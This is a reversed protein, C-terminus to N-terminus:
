EREHSLMFVLADLDEPAIGSYNPMPFHSRAYGPVKYAQPDQISERIYAEPTTASGHYGPDRIRQEAHSGVSDHPPGFFGTTGARTLTHCAGCGQAQYVEVGRAILAAEHEAMEDAKAPSCAWLGGLLLPIAFGALAVVGGVLRRM